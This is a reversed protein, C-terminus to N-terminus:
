LSHPNQQYGLKRCLCVLYMSFPQIELHGLVTRRIFCFLFTSGSNTKITTSSCNIIKALNQKGIKLPSCSAEKVLCLILCSFAACWRLSFPPPPPRFYICFLFWAAWPSYRLCRLSTLVWCSLAPPNPTVPFFAGLCDALIEFDSKFAPQLAYGLTSQNGRKLM